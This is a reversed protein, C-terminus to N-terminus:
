EDCPYGQCFKCKFYSSSFRGFDFSTLTSAEFEKEDAKLCIKFDVGAMDEVEKVTYMRDLFYKKLDDSDIKNRVHPFVFAMSYWDGDYDKFYIIKYYSTPITVRDSMKEPNDGLIVGTIVYTKEIGSSKAISRVYNELREWECRNFLSYQPAMNSLMFTNGVGAASERQDAFPAMHGRDIGREYDTCWQSSSNTLRPDQRFCDERPLRDNNWASKKTLEYSVWRPIRNLTDYAIAYDNQYLMRINAEGDVWHIGFPLHKTKIKKIEEPTLALESNYSHADYESCWGEYKRCMKLEEEYLSEATVGDIALSEISWIKAVFEPHDIFPNRNKQYKYVLENRKRERESVPDQIHWSLLVSLRGHLPEKAGKPVVYDVLELDPEGGEGEYRISMYFIMRAVDGKVEDRPEWVWKAKSTKSEILGNYKGGKDRYQYDAHDFSRNNRASNTSADAACLHHLDTGAGPKDGFDGRSKAWVHERVWGKGNDYQSEAHMKFGSYLGIVSDPNTPDADIEILLDYVKAYSLKTHGRTIKYLKTKLENGSKGDTGRYYNSPAQAFSSAAVFLLALFSLRKIIM